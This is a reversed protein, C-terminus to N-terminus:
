EAIDLWGVKMMWLIHRRGQILQGSSQGQLLERVTRPRDVLQRYMAEAQDWTPLVSAAYKHVGLGRTSEFEAENFSRRLAVKTDNTVLASPYSSFLEFPDPRDVAHRLPIPGKQSPAERLDALESWLDQYRQIVRKWDYGEMARTRGAQGM